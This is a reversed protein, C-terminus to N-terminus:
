HSVNSTPGKGATARRFADRNRIRHCLNLAFGKVAAARQRHTRTSFPAINELDARYNLYAKLSLFGTLRTTM